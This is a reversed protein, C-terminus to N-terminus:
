YTRRRDSAERFEANKEFRDWAGITLGSFLLVIIYLTDGFFYEVTVIHSASCISFLAEAPRQFLDHRKEKLPTKLEKVDEV